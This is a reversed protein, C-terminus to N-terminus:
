MNRLINKNIAIDYQVEEKETELIHKLREILIYKRLISKDNIKKSTIKKIRKIDILKDYAKQQKALIEAKNYLPMKCIDLFGVIWCDL